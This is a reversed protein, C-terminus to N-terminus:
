EVRDTILQCIGGELCDLWATDDCALEACAAYYLFTEDTYLAAHINSCATRNTEAVDPDCDRLLDGVQDCVSYRPPDVSESELAKRRCYVELDPSTDGLDRAQEFNSCSTNIICNEWRDLIEPIVEYSRAHCDRRCEEISDFLGGCTDVKNCWASCAVSSQPNAEARRAHCDVPPLTEEEIDSDGDPSLTDDDGGCAALCFMLCVLLCLWVWVRPDGAKGTMREGNKTAAM